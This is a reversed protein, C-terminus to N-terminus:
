KIGAKREAIIMEDSELAFDRACIVIKKNQHDLTYISCYIYIDDGLKYENVLFDQFDKQWYIVPQYECASKITNEYVFMNSRYYSMETLGLAPTRVADEPYSDLQMKVRIRDKDPFYHITAYSNKENDAEIKWRNYFDLVAEELSNVQRFSLSNTNSQILWAPAYYYYEDIHVPPQNTLRLMYPDISTSRSTIITKDTITGINQNVDVTQTDIFDQIGTILLEYKCKELKGDYYYSDSCLIAISTSNERTDKKIITGAVPSALPQTYAQQPYSLLPINEYNQPFYPTDAFLGYSGLLLCAIICFHTQKM